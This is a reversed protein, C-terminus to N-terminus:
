ENSEIIYGDLELDRNWLALLIGIESLCSVALRALALFDV